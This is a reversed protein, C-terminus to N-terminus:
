SRLLSSPGSFGSENPSLLKVEAKVVPAQGKSVGRLLLDFCGTTNSPNSISVAPSRDAMPNYNFCGPQIALM